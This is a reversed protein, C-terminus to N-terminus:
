NKKSGRKAAAKRPQPVEVAAGTRTGVAARIHALLKKAYEQTEAPLDAFTKLSSVKARLKKAIPGKNVKIGLDEMAKEARKWLLGGAPLTIEPDNAARLDRAYAERVVSLYFEETFLDEIAFDRDTVGVAEGVTTVTAHEPQYRDIWNHVLKKRSEEGAHDHDLLVVVDLKQGIMLTALYAAEAAGGAPTIFLEDPLGAEGSRVALNSLESLVWFDDVGEVVLNSQSLLLSNCGSVGLAAQLVFKAEPESRTLDTHVTTGGAGENVVRIRGPKRLDIMFPMHTTYILTNGEAYAELRRLLDRQAEPHLHLGPEDLLVVSNRFTGRTEHMLMLDFSFFWKFGKSRDELPILGHDREDNVFTMFQQGDARFDVEYRRQSWREAIENTLSKGADSLDYQREEALEPTGKRILDDLTLGSLEMIMLVTQDAPTVERPNGKRRQLQDLQVNGDFARYEDMYIFTPLRGVVYDEAKRRITTKARLSSVCEGARAVYSSVFATQKAILDAAAEASITATLRQGHAEPLSAASGAGALLSTRLEAKLEAALAAFADDLDSGPEAFAALAADVEDERLRDPYVEADLHAVHRGAYTRRVEVSDPVRKADTITKLHAHEEPSLRFRVHCVEHNPNQTRRHGRPWERNIQYPENQFPKFKHLAKLLTTKGSENKGVLVTLQELDVWGSDVVGKYMSVRFSIPHM